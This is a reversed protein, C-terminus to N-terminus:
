KVRVQTGIREGKVAKLINGKNNMNFVILPLDNDKCLSAATSDM